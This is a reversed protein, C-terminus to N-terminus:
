QPSYLYVDYFSRQRERERHREIRLVASQSLACITVARLLTPLHRSFRSPFLAVRDHHKWHLLLTNQLLRRARRCHPRGRTKDPRAHADPRLHIIITSCPEAAAAAAVMKSGAAHAKRGTRPCADHGARPPQRAAPPPRCSIRSPRRRRRRRGRSPGAGRNRIGHINCKWNRDSPEGTRRQSTHTHTHKKERQRKNSACVRDRMVYRIVTCIIINIAAIWGVARGGGGWM